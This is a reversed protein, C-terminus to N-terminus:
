VTRSLTVAHGDRRHSFGLRTRPGPLLHLGRVQESEGPQVSLDCRLWVKVLPTAASRDTGPPYRRGWPQALDGLLLQLVPPPGPPAVCQPQPNCCCESGPRQLFRAERLLHEAGQFVPELLCLSLRTGHARVAPSRCHLCLCHGSCEDSAIVKWMADGPTLTGQGRRPPPPHSWSCGLHGCAGLSGPFDHCPSWSLHVWVCRQQLPRQGTGLFALVAPCLPCTEHGM